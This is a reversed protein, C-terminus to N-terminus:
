GPASGSSRGSARGGFVQQAPCNECVTDLKAAAQYCFRGLASAGYIEKAKRNFGVVRYDRDLEWMAIDMVDILDTLTAGLRSSSRIDETISPSNRPIHQFTDSIAL